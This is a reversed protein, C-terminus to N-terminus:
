IAYKHILVDLRDAITDAQNFVRALNSILDEYFVFDKIKLESNSLAYLIKFTQYELERFDRRLDNIEIIIKKAKDFDELVMSLANSTKKGIIVLQDSITEFQAFLKENPTSSYVLLRRSVTEAHGVIKNMMYILDLRDTRSFVMTERSFLRKIIEERVKDQNKENSITEDVFKKLSEKDQQIFAKVANSLSTLTKEIYDIHEKYFDSLKKKLAKKEKKSKLNM